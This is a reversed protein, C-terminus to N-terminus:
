GSIWDVLTENFEQTHELMPLHKCNEFIKLRANPKRQALAKGHSVPVVPDDRGWLIFLPKSFTTLGNIIFNYVSKKQGSLNSMARLTKFLTTQASPQSSMNFNLEIMEDDVLSQDYILNKLFTEIGSRNPRMMIEGLMPITLVRTGIDAEKGLGASSVWTLTEVMEPQRIAFQASVAGGLSHGIIHAREIGLTEMFDRVFEALFELTYSADLPKDTLGHGPLDLAYVRHRASLSAFSPLWHEVYGGLGHIM